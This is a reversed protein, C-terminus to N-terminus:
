TTTLPLHYNQIKCIKEILQKRTQLEQEIAQKKQDNYRFVPITVSIAAEVTKNILLPVAICCIETNSEEM